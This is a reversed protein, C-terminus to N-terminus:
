YKTVIKRVLIGFPLKKDDSGAAILVDNDSFAVSNVPGSHSLLTKPYDDGDIDRIRLTGGDVGLALMKGHNSFAISKVAAGHVYLTKLCNAVSTDWIRISGDKSGLAILGDGSFAVSSVSYEHGNLTHLCTGTNADWAKITKDDSGSAILAGNTSLAVSSVMDDHDRLTQIDARWHTKIDSTVDIWDLEKHFLERTLSRVPGFILASIYVQLPYNEIIRNWSLLFRYEDYVLVPLRSDISISTFFNNLKTIAIIGDLIHDTLSLAELWHLFHKSLFADVRGNSCLLEIYHISGAECLHDIWYISIYLIPALPDIDPVIILDVACDLNPLDYVNRRLVRDLVDLSQLVMLRQQGEICGGTFILNGAHKILYVQASQHVFFITSDRVTLFSGCEDVADPLSLYFDSDHDANIFSALDVLTIPQKVVSVIGLISKYLEVDDSNRIQSVMQGYLGELSSSFEALKRRVNRM